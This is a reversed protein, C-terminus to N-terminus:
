VEDWGVGKLSFVKLAQYSPNNNSLVHCRLNEEGVGEVEGMGMLARRGMCAMSPGGGWAPWLPDEEGHLGYLTRRGMCAM